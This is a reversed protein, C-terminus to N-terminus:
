SWNKTYYTKAAAVTRFDKLLVDDCGRVTIKLSVMPGASIIEGRTGSSRDETWIIASNWVKWRVQM